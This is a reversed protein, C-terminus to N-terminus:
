DSNTSNVDVSTEFHTQPVALSAELGFLPDVGGIGTGIGTGISTGIGTGIGSFFCPHFSQEGLDLPGQGTM